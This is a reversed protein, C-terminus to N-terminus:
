EVFVTVASRLREVLQNDNLVYCITQGDRYGSVITRAELKALQHSAASHSVNAAEAIENVCIGDSGCHMLLMLIKFRTPDALVKFSTTIDDIRKESLKGSNGKYKFM